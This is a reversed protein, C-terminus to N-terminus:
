WSEKWPTPSLIKDSILPRWWPENELYWEITESLAENFPHDPKWGLESRIPSSDLSYRYDHGPRDEVHQILDVPKNLRQLIQKAVELNQLESNASVNYVHGTKESRIALDIAKCFDIVYLWDRVQTGSGYIPIKRGLLASIITKPIFKEPFQRPGFNNTCRLIM